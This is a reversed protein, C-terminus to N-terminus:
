SYSIFTNLLKFYITISDPPYLSADEAGRGPGYPLEGNKLGGVFVLNTPHGIINSFTKVNLSIIRFM